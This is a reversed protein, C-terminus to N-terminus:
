FGLQRPRRRRTPCRQCRAQPLQEPPVGLLGIFEECESLDAHHSGRGARLNPEFRMTEFFGADRHCASWGVGFHGLISDARYFAAHVDGVPIGYWPRDWGNSYRNVFRTLALIQQPDSIEAIDDNNLTRVVVRDAEPMPPVEWTEPASVIAELPVAILTVRPPGLVPRQGVARPDSHTRG